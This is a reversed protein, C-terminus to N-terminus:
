SAPSSISTSTATRDRIRLGKGETLVLPEQYYLITAPLMYKAHKDRVTRSAESAPAQTKITASM